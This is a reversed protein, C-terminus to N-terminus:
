QKNEPALNNENEWQYNISDFYKLKTKRRQTMINGYNQEREWVGLEM